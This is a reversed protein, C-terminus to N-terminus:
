CSKLVGKCVVLPNSSDSDKQDYVTENHDKFIMAPNRKNNTLTNKLGASGIIAGSSLKDDATRMSEVSPNWAICSEVTHKTDTSQDTYLLLGILGGVANGGSVSGLAFCRRVIRDGNDSSNDCAGILGGVKDVNGAAIDIDSWCDEVQSNNKLFGILGGVGGGNIGISSKSASCRLIRPNTGYLQGLLGGIATCNSNETFTFEEVHCDMLSIDAGKANYCGGFGGIYSLNNSNTLTSTITVDRVTCGKFLHAGKQEYGVFGGICTSATIDADEVHCNEYKGSGQTYGIFGGVNRPLKDKDSGNLIFGSVKVNTFDNNEGKTQGAVAGFGSNKDVAGTHGNIQIKVNKVTVNRVIGQIDTTGVFGGITGISSSAETETLTVGDFTLNQVTGNLVGFFSPYKTQSCSFNYITHNDGDFFIKKKFGAQANIPTWDNISSMDIDAGLKFYTCSELSADEIMNKIQKASGIVYPDHETGSGSMYRGGINAWQSTEIKLEAVRGGSIELDSSLTHVHLYGADPTEIYVSLETGQPLTVPIVPMEIWATLETSEALDMNNLGMSFESSKSGSSNTTFFMPDETSLSLKTAKSTGAPLTAVLKLISSQRLAAGNAEAWEHTFSVDHYSKVNDLSAVYRIHETSGNVSQVAKTFDYTEFETISTITGPHIIRFTYGGVTQGEFSAETESFGSLISFTNASSGIITIEEGLRWKIPCSESLTVSIRETKHEIEGNATIGKSCSIGSLIMFAAFATLTLRLIKM